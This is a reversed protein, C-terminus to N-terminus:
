ALNPPRHEWVYNLALVYWELHRDIDAIGTNCQHCLMGRFKGTEHSHDHHLRRAPEGCVDCMGAKAKGYSAEDPSAKGLRKAEYRANLFAAREPNAAVWKRRREATCSKCETTRRDKTSKHNYFDDLPKNQNCTKCQKM